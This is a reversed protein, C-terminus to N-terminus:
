KITKFRKEILVSAFGVFDILIGISTKHDNTFCVEGKLPGNAVQVKNTTFAIVEKTKELLKRFVAIQYHPITVIPHKGGKGKRARYVMFFKIFLKRMGVWENETRCVFGLTSALVHDVDKVIGNHWTHEENQIPIFIEYGENYIIQAYKREFHNNVIAVFWERREVNLVGVTDNVKLTVMIYKKTVCKDM